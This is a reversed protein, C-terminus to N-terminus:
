STPNDTQHVPLLMNRPALALGILLFIFSDDVRYLMDDFAGILFYFILFAGVWRYTQPGTCITWTSLSYFLFFLVAGFIGTEALRGLILNHVQKTRKQGYTGYKEYWQKKHDPRYEDYFTLFSKVGQGLLPANRFAAWGADWIPLRARFTPDKTTETIASIIRKAHFSDKKIYVTTGALIVILATIALAPLFNKKNRIIVIM